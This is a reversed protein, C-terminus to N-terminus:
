VDKPMLSNEALQLSTTFVIQVTTGKGPCSSIRLEGGHLQAIERCLSLGLGVGGSSRSRAQDVRYFPECVLSAQEADMGCGSDRVELIPFSDFYALLRITSDEASAKAANDILNLLLSQLLISDGRLKTLTSDITLTQNKEKLKSESAVKVQNLLEWPILEQLDLKSNRVLALDLLKFALNKMRDIESIIYDAAKIRNPETTKASQLYEAYGRIATLPTRLEHALNDILRQKDQANKDLENIKEQISSTMQNFNEALEHFEDKGPIYIREDYVGGAIKHTAKQMIRIPLTLRKLLLLLVLTLIIEVLASISILYRTLQSHNNYLESLNRVYTLTYDNYQGGLSGVIYLFHVGDSNLVKITYTNKTLGGSSDFKARSPINTFLRQNSQKLEFFVNQQKYYDAYSRMLSQISSPTPQAHERYYISDMTAYIGNTIFQYEGLSRDTESKMNLSFSYNSTLYLCINIAFIFVVLIGLFTKQWFKM